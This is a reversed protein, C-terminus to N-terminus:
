KTTDWFPPPDDNTELLQVSHRFKLCPATAEFLMVVFTPALPTDDQFHCIQQVTVPIIDNRSITVSSRRSLPAADTFLKSWLYGVHCQQRTKVYQELSVWCSVTTKNECVAGFIGLM